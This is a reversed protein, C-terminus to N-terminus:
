AAANGVRKANGPCLGPSLNNPAGERAPLPRLSDERTADAANGVLSRHARVREEAIDQLGGQITDLLTNVDM